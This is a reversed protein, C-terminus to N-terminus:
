QSEVRFIADRLQEVLVRASCSGVRVQVVLNEPSDALDNEVWLDFPTAAGGLGTVKASVFLPRESIKELFAEEARALAAGDEPLWDRCEHGDSKDCPLLESWGVFERKEAQEM